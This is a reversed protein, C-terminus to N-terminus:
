PSTNIPLHAEPSEPAVVQGSPGLRQGSPDNVHAHADDGPHILIRQKGTVPDVYAGKGGMPDPGKPILGKEKAIKDIEAPTKGAVDAPDIDPSTPSDGSGSM